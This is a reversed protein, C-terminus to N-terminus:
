GLSSIEKLKDLNNLKIKRRNVALVEEKAFESLIRIANAPTMNALAALDARKLEAALTVNDEQTGFRELVFLIADALRGRLHKQTLSIMRKDAEEVERSLLQVVKLSLDNNQKVVSLFDDRPIICVDCPELAIATSLHNKELVLAKLGIFEVPKKLAVIPDNEVIGSRVIKVKGSRLCLLGRSTDGTKFITEGAEYHGITRGRNITELEEYGLDEFLSWQRVWCNMCTHQGTVSDIDCSHPKEM